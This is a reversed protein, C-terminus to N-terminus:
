AYYKANSQLLVIATVQPLNKGADHFSEKGAAEQEDGACGDGLVVEDAVDVGEDAGATVAVSKGAGGQGKAHYLERGIGAFVVPVAAAAVMVGIIGDEAEAMGVEAAGAHGVVAIDGEHGSGSRNFSAVIAFRGAESGGERM